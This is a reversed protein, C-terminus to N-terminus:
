KGIIAKHRKALRQILANGASVGGPLTSPIGRGIAKNKVNGIIGSLVEPPIPGPPIETPTPPTAPAFPRAMPAPAVPPMVGPAQQGQLTPPTGMVPAQKPLPMQRPGTPLTTGGMGGVQAGPLGAVTSQGEPSPPANNPPPEQPPVSEIYRDADHFGSQEMFDTFLETAKIRKGENYMAANVGIRAGTRPYVATTMTLASNMMNLRDQPAMDGMSGVDPVFDYDGALDGPEIILHGLSGGGETTLKPLTDGGVKVPFLPKSLSQPSVNTGVMSKNTLLDISEQDLGYADLGENQFYRIADKGIIQIIKQKESNDASSFMFQQNMKVWFMMQKKLAEGLYLLNFNDRASRAVNLANIETATKQPSNPNLNSTAASTEGLAEQMAGVLFKYTQTFEAIGASSQTHPIVDASPNNMLWKKGPGFELTHMQVNVPNVKLPTYLNMNIADLYQCVLANIAKQLKEVPEIESLGYLDEDIPYYKLMVVPIQQHKYPNPIDRLILGHKPAFTIWRDPRYETVIEIVKFSPDLGLWDQLGKVTLNKMWYNQSRTDLGKSSVNSLKDRLIDLNEYIPKSRATDNIDELDNLTMYDRLQIWNKITSYSPNHLVDRNNWPRFDPGDFYTIAKGQEKTDKGFPQGIREIQRQWRWTCLAFSAGYKRTNQDMLAWKGLMPIESARENDDWQFSLLENNIKAKLEDGGNRPILRGEPKNALIRSTKETLMTFIRPDTVMSRYPWSTENIYNRFLTDKQDWDVMRRRVDTTAMSYHRYAESFTEREEVTGSIQVDKITDVM